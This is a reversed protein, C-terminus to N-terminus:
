HNRQFYYCVYEVLKRKKEHNYAAPSLHTLNFANFTDLATINRIFGKQYILCLFFPIPVINEKRLGCFM